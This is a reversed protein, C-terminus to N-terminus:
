HCEGFMKIQINFIIAIFHNKEQVEACHRVM